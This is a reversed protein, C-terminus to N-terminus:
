APDYSEPIFFGNDAEFGGEGYKKRLREQEDEYGAPGQIDSFDDRFSEEKEKRWNCKYCYQITTIDYATGATIEIERSGKIVAVAGCEPCKELKVDKRDQWTGTAYGINFLFDLASEKLESDDQTRDTNLHDGASKYPDEGANGVIKNSVEGRIKKELYDWFYGQQWYAHTKDMMRLTMLLRQADARIAYMLSNIRGRGKVGTLCKHAAELHLVTDPIFLLNLENLRQSWDYKLHRLKKPVYKKNSPVTGIAWALAIDNSALNNRFVSKFNRYWAHVDYPPYYMIASLNGSSTTKLKSSKSYIMNLRKLDQLIWKAEKESFKQAEQRFALSREYWNVLDSETKISNRHIEALVHFALKRRNKLVSTVPRPNKFKGIWYDASGHPLIMFVHGETDYKLRGARGAMQIINLEDVPTIGRHVGVIVVNRAPLNVGWAITSTSVLIRIGHDRDAFSKEIQQRESWNLNANHFSANIGIEKLKRLILEGTDIAHVFVLFKEDPKSLVLDIAMQIKKQETQEYDCHGNPKKIETYEVPHIQLKVPRWNSEIIDTKKGNLSTLWDGLDNVNPMTASLFVIRAQPCHRAFRMIGTEVADGRSTTLIHSEDVVVLGVEKMWYNRESDFKRTRSDMMESTMVIIRSAWLARTTEPGLVYDGTMITITEGPYRKQWESYKEETLAKLPSLYIVRQKKQLTSDILLEAAITKGASTNAAIIMNNPNDKKHYVLSQVPNFHEFPYIYHPYESTSILNKGGAESQYTKNTEGAKVFYRNEASKENGSYTKVLRFGVGDSRGNIGPYNENRHGSEMFKGANCWCGGRMVKLTGSSPGAPDKQDYGKYEGSWDQCLEYVNGYVDYLGWDNPKKQKVGHTRGDSNEETWAYHVIESTDKGFFYKTDSEARCAYEWEAETPLRYTDTNEIRNLKDIFIQVDEWCVNEVPKDPGKFHSPNEGMVVQWQQQTVPCEAMWFPKKIEVTFGEYNYNTFESYYDSAAPDDKVDHDVGMVFRGRPILVFKTGISNTYTSLHHADEQGDQICHSQPITFEIKAGLNSYDDYGGTIETIVAPVSDGNKDFEPALDAALHKDIYGIQRGNGREVRIANSDYPNSPDRRLFVIEGTILQAVAAQRGDFTVGVVKTEIKSGPLYAM